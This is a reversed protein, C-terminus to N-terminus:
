QVTVALLCNCYCCRGASQGVALDLDLTLGRFFLNSLYVFLDLLCFLRLSLFCFYLASLSSSSGSSQSDSVQKHHMLFMRRQKDAKLLEHLPAAALIKVDGSRLPSGKIAGNVRSLRHMAEPKYPDM